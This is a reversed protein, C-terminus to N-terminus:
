PACALPAPSDTANYRSGNFSTTGGFSLCERHAGIFLVVGVPDPSTLLDFALGAGVGSADLTSGTKLDVTKIPGAVLNTDRYKYGANAGQNGMISWNQAPLPYTRDFGAAASVIRLSGGFVTPDDLSSNGAGITIQSGKALLDLTNSSPDGAPAFLVLKTGTLLDTSSPLTTTTPPTTTTTSSITSPPVGSTSSTTSSSTTTTTNLAGGCVANMVLSGTLSSTGAWPSGANGTSSYVDNESVRTGTTQTGMGAATTGGSWLGLHYTGAALPLPAPLAFTVFGPAQDAAVVVEVSTALLTGASGGADSYIVARV